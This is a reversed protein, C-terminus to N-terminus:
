PRSHAHTANVLLARRQSMPVPSDAAAQVFTVVAPVVVQIIDVRGLHCHAQNVTEWCPPIYSFTALAALQVVMQFVSKPSLKQARLFAAGYGGSLMNVHESGAMSAMSATYEGQVKIMRTDLATDTKLPMYVPILGDHAAHRSRSAHTATFQDGMLEDLTLADLMTHEGVIGSIGKSCIVFQISKDQWRNAADNKGGYHFQSVPETATLPPAEDLAVILALTEITAISVANDRDLEQLTQRAETWSDRNDPTFIAHLDGCKLPGSRSEFHLPFSRPFYEIGIPVYEFAFSIRPVPVKRVVGEGLQIVQSVAPIM